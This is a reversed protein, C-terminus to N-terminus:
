WNCSTCSGFTEDDILIRDAQVFFPSQIPRVTFITCRERQLMFPLVTALATTNPLMPRDLFVLSSREHDYSSIPLCLCAIIEGMWAWNCLCEWVPLVYYQLIFPSPFNEILTLVEHCRSCYVPVIKCFFSITTAWKGMSYWQARHITPPVNADLDLKQRQKEQKREQGEIANADSVLRQWQQEQSEMQEKIAIADQMLKQCKTKQEQEEKKLVRADFILKQQRITQEQEQKELVSAEFLLKQRQRKQRMHKNTWCM